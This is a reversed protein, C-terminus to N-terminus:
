TTFHDYFDSENSFTKKGRKFEVVYDNENTSYDNNRRYHMYVACNPLDCNNMWYQYFDYFWGVERPTSVGDIHDQRITIHISGHFSWLDELENVRPLGYLNPPYVFSTVITPFLRREIMFSDIFNERIYKEAKSEYYTDGTIKGEWASISFDIGDLEFYMVSAKFPGAPAQLPFSGGKRKINAPYTNEVYELIARKDRQRDSRWWAPPDIFIDYIEFFTLFLVLLAVISIVIIRKRTLKKM